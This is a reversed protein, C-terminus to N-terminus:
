ASLARRSRPPDSSDRVQGGSWRRNSCKRGRPTVGIRQGHRTGRWSSRASAGDALPSGHLCSDERGHPCCGLLRPAGYAGAVFGAVEGISYAGSCQDPQWGDAERMWNTIGFSVGAGLGVGFNSFNPSAALWDGLDEAWDLGLPDICNVPDGGCYAYLNQGGGFGIPDGATWVGVSPDYDRAGFRWLGPGPLWIGGAFGFPQLRDLLGGASSITPVGWVDDTFREGTRRSLQGRDDYQRGRCTPRDAKDYQAAPCHVSTGGTVVGNPGYTMTQTGDTPVGAGGSAVFDACSRAGTQYRTARLLRDGTYEYRWGIADRLMAGTAGARAVHEIRYTVRGTGDRACIEDEYPRAAAGTTTLHALEGLASATVVTTLAGAGPASATITLPDFTAAPPTTGASRVFSLETLDTGASTALQVRSLVLDADYGYALSASTTRAGTTLSVGEADLTARRPAPRFEFAVDVADALM